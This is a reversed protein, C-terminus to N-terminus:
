FSKKINHELYNKEKEYKIPNKITFIVLVLSLIISIVIVLLKYKKKDDV